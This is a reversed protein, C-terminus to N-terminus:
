LFSLADIFYHPSKGSFDDEKLFSYIGTGTACCGTVGLDDQLRIVNHPNDDIFLTNQNVAIGKEKLFKQVVFSFNQLPKGVWMIHQRTAMMVDEATQGCVYIKEGSIGRVFRDPNSCVMIINPNSKVAQIVREKLSENGVKLSSTFVIVDAQDPDSVIVSPAAKKVYPFSKEKGFVFVKKGEIVQYIEKNLSLGFGSSIIHDEEILIGQKILRRSIDDVYNNSNNTVVFVPMTKQCETIVDQIGPIPGVDSYLVGTADVLLCHIKKEKLLSEISTTVGYSESM